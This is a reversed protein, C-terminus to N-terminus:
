SDSLKSFSLDWIYINMWSFHRPALSLLTSYNLSLSLVENSSIKFLGIESSIKAESSSYRSSSIGSSKFKLFRAVRVRINRVLILLSFLKPNARLARSKLLM